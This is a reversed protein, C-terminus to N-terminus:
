MEFPLFAIDPSGYPSIHRAGASGTHSRRHKYISHVLINGVQGCEPGICPIAASIVPYYYSGSSSVKARGGARIFVSTSGHHTGDGATHYEVSGKGLEPSCQVVFFSVEGPVSSIFFIQRM